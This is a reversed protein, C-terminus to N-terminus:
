FLSVSSAASWVDCGSNITGAAFDRSVGSDRLECSVLSQLCTGASMNEWAMLPVSGSM